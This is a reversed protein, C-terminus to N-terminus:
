RTTRRRLIRLFAGVARRATIPLAGIRSLDAILIRGRGVGLSVERGEREVKVVVGLINAGPILGDPASLNDGKIAYRSGSEGIIRHVYLKDTMPESFAVVDGKRLPRKGVPHVTVIDGDRIFPAMSTGRAEFRFPVERDLVAKMLGLLADGSLALTGAPHGVLAPRRDERPM